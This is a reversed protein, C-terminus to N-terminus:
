GGSYMPPGIMVKLSKMHCTRRCKTLKSVKPVSVASIVAGVAERLLM